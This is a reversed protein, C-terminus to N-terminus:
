KQGTQAMEPVVPDYDHLLLSDKVDDVGLDVNKMMRLVLGVHDAACELSVYEMM